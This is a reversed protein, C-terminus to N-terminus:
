KPNPDYSIESFATLLEKTHPHSPNTFLTETESLEALSGNHFVAIRDAIHRVVTLDHSIFLYSLSHAKRIEELLSLIEAQTAVDLSSLCEDCVLVKPRLALARAIAVRQKQGGSCEHPYRKALSPPLRVQDLLLRVKEELHDTQGHIQFPEGIIKELTLRPNLSSFPDQFVMQIMQALNKRGMKGIPVGEFLISGLTPPFIGLLLKALTSKGSGSEGVIALVERPLLTFSVDHLAAFPGQPTSFIKTLHRVEIM